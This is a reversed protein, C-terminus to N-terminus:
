TDYRETELLDAFRDYFTELNDIVGQLVAVANGTTVTIGAAQSSWNRLVPIAAKITARKNVLAQEASSLAIATRTFIATQNTENDVWQGADLKQTAPNYTPLAAVSEELTVLGPAPSTIAQGDSRPWPVGRTTVGALKFTFRATPSVPYTIM